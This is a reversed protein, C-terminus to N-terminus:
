LELKIGTIGKKQWDRLYGSNLNNSLPTFEGFKKVKWTKQEQREQYFLTVTVECVNGRLYQEFEDISCPIGQLVFEKKPSIRDTKISPLCDAHTAQSIVQHNMDSKFMKLLQMSRIFLESTDSVSEMIQLLPKLLETFFNDNAIIKIAFDFGNKRFLDEIYEIPKELDHLISPGIKPSAFILDGERVNMYANLCIASRIIKKIIRAVTEQRSGYNTGSEHYTVEAAYYRHFEGTSLGLVDIESQQLFQSFNSTKKYIEYQYEKNFYEATVQFLLELEKYNQLSWQHSPKWNMQVIQCHKIHRLWSYFVSEGIEIKM